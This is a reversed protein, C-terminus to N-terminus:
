MPTVAFGINWLIQIVISFQKPYPGWVTLVYQQTRCVDRWIMKKIELFYKWKISIKCWSQNICSASFPNYAM